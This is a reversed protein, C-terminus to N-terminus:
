RRRNDTIENYCQVDRCEDHVADEPPPQSTSPEPDRQVDTDNEPAAFPIERAALRDESDHQQETPHPHDNSLEIEGLLWHGNTTSVSLSM